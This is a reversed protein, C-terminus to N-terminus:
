KLLDPLPHAALFARADSETFMRRHPFAARYAAVGHRALEKWEKDIQSWYLGENLTELGPLNGDEFMAWDVSYTGLSAYPDNTEAM